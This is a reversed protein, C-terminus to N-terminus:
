QQQPSARRKLKRKLPANPEHYHGNTSVEATQEKPPELDDQEQLMCNLLDEKLWQLREQMASFDILQPGDETEQHLPASRSQQQEKLSQLTLELHRAETAVKAKRAKWYVRKLAALRNPDTPAPTEPGEYNSNSYRWGDPFLLQDNVEVYEGHIDCFGQFYARWDFNM